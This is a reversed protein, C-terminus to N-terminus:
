LDSSETEMGEEQRCHAALSELAQSPCQGQTSVELVRNDATSPMKNICCANPLQSPPHFGMAQTDGESRVPLLIVMHAGDSQQKQILDAELVLSKFLAGGVPRRYIAPVARGYAKIQDGHRLTFVIDALDKPIVITLHEPTEIALGTPSVVRFAMYRDSSYGGPLTGAMISSFSCDLKVYKNALEDVYVGSVFRRYDVALYESQSPKPPITALLGTCASLGVVLVLMWFHGLFRLTHRM